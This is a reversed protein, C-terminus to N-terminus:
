QKKNIEQKFLEFSQLENILVDHCKMGYVNNRITEATVEKDGLQQYIKSKFWDRKQELLKMMTQTMPHACWSNWLELSLEEKNIM